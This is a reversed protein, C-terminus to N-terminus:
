IKLIEVITSVRTVSIAFAFEMILVKLICQQLMTGISPFFCPDEYQTTYISGLNQSSFDLTKLMCEMYPKLFFSKTSQIQLMKGISAFTYHRLMFKMCSKLFLSLHIPNAVNNWHSSFYLTKVHIERITEFYPELLIM